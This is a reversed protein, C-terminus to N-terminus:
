NIMMSCYKTHIFLVTFPKGNLSTVRTKAEFSSTLRLERRLVLTIDLAKSGGVLLVAVIYNGHHASPM